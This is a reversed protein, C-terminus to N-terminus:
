EILEKIENCSLLHDPHHYGDGELCLDRIIVGHLSYLAHEHISM